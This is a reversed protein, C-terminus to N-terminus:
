HRVGGSCNWGVFGRRRGGDDELCGRSRPAPRATRRTSNVKASRSGTKLKATRMAGGALLTFAAMLLAALLTFAALPLPCRRSLQEGAQGARRRVDNVSRSAQFSMCAFLLRYNAMKRRLRAAPTCSCPSAAEARLAPACSCPSAAESRWLCGPRM